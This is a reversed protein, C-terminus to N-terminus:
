FFLFSVVVKNSNFDPAWNEATGAGTDFYVGRTPVYYSLGLTFIVLDFNVGARYHLKSHKFVDWFDDTSRGGVTVKGDNVNLLMSTGTGISFNIFSNPLFLLNLSASLDNNFGDGFSMLDMVGVQLGVINNALPINLRVEAGFQYNKFETFNKGFEEWSNAAPFPLAVNGGVQFIGASLSCVALVLVLVIATLKKKM